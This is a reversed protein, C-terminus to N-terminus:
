GNAPAEIGLARLAALAADEPKMFLLMRYFGVLLGVEHICREKIIEQWEAVFRNQETWCRKRMAEFVLRMGEWTTSYHEVAEVSATERKVGAWDIVERPPWGYNNSRVYVPGLDTHWGCDSPRDLAAEYCGCEPDPGCPWAVDVVNLGFLHEALLADIQRENGV